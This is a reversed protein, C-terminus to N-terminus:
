LVGRGIVFWVLLLVVGVGVIAPTTASTAPRSRASAAARRRRRPQRCRQRRRRHHEQRVLRDGRVGQPRPRGHLRQDGCDYKWGEALIQPEVPKAVKKAYIAVAVAIGVLACAIALLALWRRTTTPARTPSTARVGVQSSRNSGTSSSTSGSWRSHVRVVAAPHHRRRVVSRRARGAPVAHHGPSEHPKFEGHAGHTQDEEGEPAEDANAHSEWRAEGFFVMIVQRTMYYATLIATVLGIVYLIPAAPAARPSPSCCSRTRRGSGPSRRCVPSRWGASSSRPPPSRADGQPACGDQAHGARPADRPDGFRFRPVAAGQLLRPHGHPLDRRRVCGLRRRPVHLRAAVGDLVRAGEQHRDPRHRDHRRVARHHAGVWAITVSVEPAAAALM